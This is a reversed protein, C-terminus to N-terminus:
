EEEEPPPLLEDVAISGGFPSELITGAPFLRLDGYTGGATNPQLHLELQREKLNIIWYERIGALAYARCKKGRDYRLTEESIEVVLHIDEPTPHGTKRNYNRTRVIAFDPEPESENPLTIPDQARYLYRQQFKLIFFLMLLSMCQAHREGTPLKPVIEGFLLEVRDNETLVGKAIADHYRALTWVFYAPPERLLIGSLEAQQPHYETMVAIYVASEEALNRPYLQGDSCERSRASM